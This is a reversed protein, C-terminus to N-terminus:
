NNKELFFDNNKISFLLSEKHGALSHTLSEAKAYLQEVKSYGAHIQQNVYKNIKSRDPNLTYLSIVTILIMSAALIPQLAPRLLFDFILKSKQPPIKYLKKMLSPSVDIEPIEALSKKAQRMYSLLESCQPCQRLHNEVLNKEEQSLNNELYPSLFKEIQKCNM